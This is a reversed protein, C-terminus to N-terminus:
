KLLVKQGDLLTQLGATCIIDGNSLGDVVIFGAETLEGIEITKKVAVGIGDKMGNIIFVFNGKGDKGVAHVPIILENEKGEDGFSFSVEASMGPKIKKSEDMISVKVEYNASNEDTIPSIQFVNGNINENEIASFKISVPMDMQIKNITNEPIGIEINMEDGANLVAIVKGASTNENLSGDVSAIVGDNPAYIVGYNLQSQQISLNRKASEFQDLATQYSDKANEYDRLSNSGKEFLKKVRDLNSKATKKTSKASNLASRSKELALNAQVNDLRAILDGKKVKQGTSINLETIIGNSRFSLDIENGAKATGSFTRKNNNNIDGVIIYKVPKITEKVEVVDDSCAYLIFLTLFLAPIKKM